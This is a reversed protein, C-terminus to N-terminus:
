TVAEQSSSDPAGDEESSGLYKFLWFRGKLMWSFGFAWLALAEFWFTLDLNDWWEGAFFSGYGIAAMSLLILVGSVKYIWNRLSKKPTFVIFEPTSNNARQKSTSRTFVYFAYYALFLFLGAACGGHIWEVNKFLEFFKPDGEIKTIISVYDGPDKLNFDVLARGSFNELECGRETTPFIAVGYAFFGAWTALRSEDANDARYVILFTGIFVLAGVLVDGFVQSYYFHSISDYFCVKAWWGKSGGYWGSIMAIPLFFAVLGVIYALKRQDVQALPAAYPYNSSQEPQFRDEQAIFYNLM